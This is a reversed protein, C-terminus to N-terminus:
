LFVSLNLSEFIKDVADPYYVPFFYESRIRLITCFYTLKQLLETTNYLIDIFFVGIYLSIKIPLIIRFLPPAALLM